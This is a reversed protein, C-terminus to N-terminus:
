RRARKASAKRYDRELVRGFKKWSMAVSREWQPKAPNKEGVGYPRRRARLTLQTRHGPLETLRYDLAYLRHSGVSESHWRNPPFLRVVHHSWFWGKGSDALDEYIVEHSTRRLIRRQYEEGEFRADQPTYDTCWRYVFELPARFTARVEYMPGPWKTPM